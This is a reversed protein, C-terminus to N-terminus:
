FYRTANLSDRYYLLTTKAASQQVSTNQYAEPRLYVGETFVQQQWAPIVVRESLLAVGILVLSALALRPLFPRTRGFRVYITFGSVLNVTAAVVIAGPLGLLPILVFGALFSGLIGGLTNIAYASGLRQGLQAFRGTVLDSVIPFLAGMMFTPLMMVCASLTFQLWSLGSFSGATLPWLSVFWDPLQSFLPISLLGYVGLFLEIYIFQRFSAPGRALHREVWLSGLAMGGLFTALMICFAYISSGLVLSLARTWAVEYVMASFGSMAFAAFLWRVEGLSEGRPLSPSPTPGRSLARFGLHELQRDFMLCLLGIGLNLVGACMLTCLLGLVPLGQYYVFITGAMAGATNIGYLSAIKVGREESTRILFRSLTPFTGGLLTTPLLLIAASCVFSAGVLAAPSFGSAQYIPIYVRQIAAFLAPTLFAYLGVVAELAAYWRLGAGEQRDILRGFLWSGLALGGFFVTLVTSVAHVTSGFVLLLKRLWLIQYVL